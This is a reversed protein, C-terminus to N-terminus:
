YFIVFNDKYLLTKPISLRFSFSIKTNIMNLLRPLGNHFIYFKDYM